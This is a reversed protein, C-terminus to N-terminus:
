WDALEAARERHIAPNGLFTRDFMARKFYFQVDCEWTFGIGGHLEVADRAASMFRDTLHSKALAAARVSEDQIHDFSHAAFWFLGRAPEIDVAMDALKHKVSQFHAIAQGFQERTKAYEATMEVLKWAGGFADAALLVLGADRVRDASAQELLDAAAGELTLKELRRTRDVGDISELKLGQAGREVLAFRGGSVGVLIVDAQSANPVYLKTGSVSGSECRTKWESPDWLNGDEALAVTGLVEGSALRPLWAEKQADSGCSTLAICALAHGLFPAPVAAAGLVEAVLALDILELGAGGYRDAVNLGALGMEVMGQWLAPDYPEDGDFIERLRSPPCENDVFGRVTEMLLDQEDSLGFDV